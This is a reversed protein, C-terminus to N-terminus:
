QQKAAHTKKEVKQFNKSLNERLQSNSQMQTSAIYSKSVKVKKSSSSQHTNNTSTKAAAKKKKASSNVVTIKQSIKIPGQRVGFGM